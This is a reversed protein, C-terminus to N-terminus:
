RSMCAMPGFTAPTIPVATAAPVISAINPPQCRTYNLDLSLNQYLHHLGLSVADYDAARFKEEIYYLGAARAIHRHYAMLFMQVTGPILRAAVAHYVIRAM